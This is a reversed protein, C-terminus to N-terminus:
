LGGEAFVNEELGDPDDDCETIVSRAILHSAYVGEEQTFGSSVMYYRNDNKDRYIMVFGNGSEMVEQFAKRSVELDMKNKKAILEFKSRM